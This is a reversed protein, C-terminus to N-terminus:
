IPLTHWCRWCLGVLTSMLLAILVYTLTFETLYSLSLGLQQIRVSSTLWTLTSGIILHTWYAWLVYVSLALTIRAAWKQFVDGIRVLKRMYPVTFILFTCRYDYNSTLFFTLALVSGGIIMCAIELRELTAPWKILLSLENSILLTLL